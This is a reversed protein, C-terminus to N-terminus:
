KLRRKNFEEKRKAIAKDILDVVPKWYNKVMAGEALDGFRSKTVKTPDGKCRLAFVTQQNVNEISSHFVLDFAGPLSARTSGTVLPQVTEAAELGTGQMTEEDAARTKTHSLAIWHIGLGRLARCPALIREWRYQIGMYFDAGKASKAKPPDPNETDMGEIKKAVANRIIQDFGSLTDTILLKHLPKNNKKYYEFNQVYFGEIWKAVASPSSFSKIEYGEEGKFERYSAVEDVSPALAIIGSGEELLADRAFSSKGSGSPGIVLAAHGPEPM